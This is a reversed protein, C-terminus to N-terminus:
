NQINENLLILRYNRIVFPHIFRPVYTWQENMINFYVDHEFSEQISSITKVKNSNKLMYKNIGLWSDKSKGLQKKSRILVKDGKLYTNM